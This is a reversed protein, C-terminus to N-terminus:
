TAQRTSAAKRRPSTCIATPMTIYYNGGNAFVETAAAAHMTVKTISATGSSSVVPWQGGSVIVTPRPYSKTVAVTCSASVGDATATVTATGATYGTILGDETVEVIESDSTTWTVEPFSTDGPTLVATLQKSQGGVMSVATENLTVKTVHTVPMEVVLIYLAAEPKMRDNLSFVRFAQLVTDKSDLGEIAGYVGEIDEKTSWYDWNTVEAPFAAAVLNSGKLPVFQRKTGKGSLGDKITYETFAPLEAFYVNMDNYIIGTEQVPIKKGNQTLELAANPAEKVTVKIVAPAVEKQGDVVGEAAVYYNGADLVGTDWTFNGNEDTVGDLKTWKANTLGAQINSEKCYYVSRGSLLEYVTTSDANSYDELARVLTLELPVGKRVTTEFVQHEAGVEGNVTFFSFNTGNASSSSIMHGNIKEGGYLAIQDSTSGWKHAGLPYEWNVYYNLNTGHDWLTMYSSGVSGTWSIARQFTGDTYSSGNGCSAAPRGLYFKETAYIFVHMLTVIGEATEKTGVLQSNSYETDGEKHTSYCMPNYYYKELGYLALDFYPVTLKTPVMVTDTERCYAFSNTGKSISLTVTVTSPPAAVTATLTLIDSVNGVIDVARFFAKQTGTGAPYYAYQPDAVSWSKGDASVEYVMIDGDPDTFHESLDLDYWDNLKMNISINDGPTPSSNAVENALAAMPLMGLVMCMVLFLSLLRRRM